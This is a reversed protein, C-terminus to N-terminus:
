AVICAFILDKKLGEEEEEEGDGMAFTEAVGGSVSSSSPKAAHSCFRFTM